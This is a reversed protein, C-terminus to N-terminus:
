YTADVGKFLLSRDTAGFGPNNNDVFQSNYELDTVAGVVSYDKIPVRVVNITQPNGPNFEVFDVDFSRGGENYAVIRITVNESINVLDYESNEVRVGADWIGDKQIFVKYFDPKATPEIPDNQASWKLTVKGGAVFTRIDKVPLPQVAYKVGYREALFKLIGKYIARSVDFRFQPNFAHKMDNENQHSLLEMIVAPVDPRSVEAYNKDYMSRRVWTSDHLKRIDDVVQTLMIDAFDRGSFKSKGNQYNGRGKDTYNITLSGFISDNRGANTHLAFALDVPVKATEVLWNVWDGRSKYDDMYDSIVGKNHEQIYVNKPVGSYQMFYRAGEAWRPVGSLKGDREVSGMGGGIKIADTSIQGNGELTIKVDRNLEFKGLYVWGSGVTQNVEFQTKGQNHYVTYKAKTSNESSRKYSVYVAYKGARDLTTKYTATAVGSSILSTGLEFPNQDQLIDFHKFGGQVTTWKGTLEVDKFNNDLVVEYTNVDRERPTVIVAGSNELMPFVYNDMWYFTHIDEISGFLAPRQFMWTTDKQDYYFGHSSWMALTRYSLGKGYTMDGLSKVLPATIRQVDTRKTDKSLSKRYLNPIYREIPVSKSFIGIKADSYKDGLAVRVSDEWRKCLDERIAIQMIGENYYLNVRGESCAVRELRVKRESQTLFENFMSPYTGFVEKIQREKARLQKTSFGKHVQATACLSILLTMIITIKRM